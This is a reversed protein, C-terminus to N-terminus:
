RVHRGEEGLQIAHAVQGVLREACRQKQSGPHTLRDQELALRADALGLGGLRQGSDQVGRQDPQLAILAQGRCLCQVLPIVRTLQQGDPQGLGPALRGALSVQEAIVVQKLPRQEGCKVVRARPRRDQQDVLYVPAVVLELREQELQKGLRRDGNGLKAGPAGFIRWHYHQGGVPGPVQVVRQLPAAQVVPDVVRIGAPYRCDDPAPNGRCALPQRPLHGTADM